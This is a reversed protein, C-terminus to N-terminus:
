VHGIGAAFAFGVFGRPLNVCINTSARPASNQMPERIADSIFGGVMERTVRLIRCNRRYLLGTSERTVRLIRCPMKHPKWCSLGWVWWGAIKVDHFDPDNRMKHIFDKQGILWRHRAHLDLENVPNDAWEAVGDPDAALARWFNTLYADMDNVTEVKPPHPRVLLVAGSGFFPEVYNPVDGFREWVLSAVRSKGGFYPYPAKM